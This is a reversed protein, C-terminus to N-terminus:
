LPGQDVDAKRGPRPRSGNWRRKAWPIIRISPEFIDLDFPLRM